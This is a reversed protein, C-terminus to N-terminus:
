PLALMAVEVTRTGPLGQRQWLGRQVHPGAGHEQTFAGPSHDTHGAHPQTQESHGPILRGVEAWVHGWLTGASHLSHLGQLDEVVISDEQEAIQSSMGLLLDDVDEQQM